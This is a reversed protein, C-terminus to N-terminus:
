ADQLVKIAREVLMDKVREGYAKMHPAELHARLHEVSEWKEVITVVDADVAQPGIAGPLDVTPVYEICGAEALVNPVNAKFLAIFAERHGPKIRLSAIVHIM